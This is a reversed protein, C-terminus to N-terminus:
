TATQVKKEGFVEVVAEVVEGLEKILDDKEEETMKVGGPSSAQRAKHYKIVVDKLENIPAKAKLIYKGWTSGGFFGAVVTFFMTLLAALANEILWNGATAAAGKVVSMVGAMAPTAAMVALLLILMVCIVKRM